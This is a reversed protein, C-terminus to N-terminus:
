RNPWLGPTAFEILHGDPDRLFISHGGRPWSVRGEIAIDRGTLWDEWSRLAEGPVQFAIHQRGEADHGPITGGPTRAPEASGGRLFLLLVGPGIGLACFIPSALLPQLGIISEYFRRAAAMDQVYLATELLRGPPLPRAAKTEADPQDSRM